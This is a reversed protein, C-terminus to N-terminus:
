RVPGGAPSAAGHRAMSAALRLAAILSDARAQGSGAIPFATGHDPSTRIFPLGLTVNVGEDFSLTKLPILAQDHYMAVAADYAARARAHFITDAPHPGSVEYGETRLLALAPGIIRQEEDGMLGGEGAHPNLGTVAIRPRAIGFWRRLGDATVRVTAAILDVSLAGPVAALPIHITVPVVRLDPSCLMMVPTASHGAARALAGLFETHGPHPFGAAAMVHKAIPNTVIAGARGRLVLSVATEISRKVAPANAASPVGATVPEALALALPLVPLSRAFVAPAEGIDALASCPVHVGLARARAELAEPAGLYVFPPIGVGERQLWAMLTIDTGIGAPDGMTLALPLASGGGEAHPEATRPTTSAPM